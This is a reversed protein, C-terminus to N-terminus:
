NFEWYSMKFSWYNIKFSRKKSDGRANLCLCNILLCFSLSIQLLHLLCVHNRANFLLKNKSLICKLKLMYWCLIKSNTFCLCSQLVLVEYIKASQWFNAQQLLKDYCNIQVLFTNTIRSFPKEMWHQCSFVLFPNIFLM